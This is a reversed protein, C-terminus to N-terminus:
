NLTFVFFFPKNDKAFIGSTKAFIFKKIICLWNQQLLFANKVIFLIFEVGGFFYSNHM